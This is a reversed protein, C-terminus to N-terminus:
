VQNLVRVAALKLEVPYIVIRPIRILSVLQVIWQISIYRTSLTLIFRKLLQASIAGPSLTDSKEVRPNDLKPLEFDYQNPFSM